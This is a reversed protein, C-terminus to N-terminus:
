NCRLPVPSVVGTRFYSDDQKRFYISSLHSIHEFNVIFVGYHCRQRQETKVTEITSKSCTLTLQTTITPSPITLHHTFLYGLMERFILHCLYPQM